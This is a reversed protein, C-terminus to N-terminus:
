KNDIALNYTTTVVGYNSKNTKYQASITLTEMRFDGKSLRIIYQGKGSQPEIPYLGRHTYKGEKLEGIYFITGAQPPSLKLELIYKNELALRNIPTVIIRPKDSLLKGDMTYEKLGLGAFGEKFPALAMLTGDKYYSKRIGDVKGRVYPAERYLESSRYYMKSMGDRYGEKYNRRERLVGNPYYLVAPGHKKGDKYTYVAQLTGQPSFHKMLGHAKGDKVEAETKVEGGKYYEYALNDKTEKDGATTSDCSTFIM